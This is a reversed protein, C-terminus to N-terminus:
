RVGAVAPPIGVEAAPPLTHSDSWQRQASRLKDARALWMQIALDYHELMPRLAYPRNSRLWAQEYLDRTLSYGDRLDQMRGNAANSIQGLEHSVMARDKKDASSELSVAHAYSAQMEEALQFKLGIFDMRRAGLELADIEDTERLSTPNSPYANAPNYVPAAGPSVTFSKAAAPAAARAEAILTLAREAHLRVEHVYPRIKDAYVLGDKSWPDIWFLGDSGDGTKAQDRLISHAQMMETQAENLKGTADGHFVQAYSQEFQPISSEGKQWSAAAGYLIGYWDMNFLGEGDDNWITNLAGTAGLKQGDRLFGQINELGMVYNPYVRSWNNVGPAVWTEYGGNTFPTIYANYGEPHPNYEWAVAVTADKFSQPMAKVLDPSHMAIDGWFLLKRHLPELATVIRQMFDLYAPGLGRADVDAKTQGLGLDQTEDAGLHLFPGPYIQALEGFWQKILELSGPQAPALVAGHPTEALDKYQEWVLTHHLHGFAEQEPIITVHYPRAFEVLTRADAASMSGNPPAALPNSAYQMTQEFYPSYLNIKYAALTRIMKKQFDLTPVPGRSLDDDLGRYRLAPWDRVTAGHLTGRGNTVEILQKVTQAGYFLGEASAATVKIGTSTMDIRYGEGRMAEDFGAPLKGGAAHVLEVTAAGATGVPVGRESLTQMLEDAAFRDEASCGACVVKVGALLPQDGTPRVERPMPILKLTQAPVALGAVWLLTGAFMRLNSSKMFVGYVFNRM